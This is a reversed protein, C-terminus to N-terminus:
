EPLADLFTSFRSVVVIQNRTNHKHPFCALKCPLIQEISCMNGQPDNAILVRSFVPCQLEAEIHPQDAPVQKYWHVYAVNSESELDDSVCGPAAHSLFAQVRGARLREGDRILILSDKAKKSGELRTCTFKASGVTSRDYVRAFGRPGHCIDVQDPGLM